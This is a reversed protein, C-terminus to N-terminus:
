VKTWTTSQDPQRTWNLSDFHDTVTRPHMFVTDLTARRSAASQSPRTRGLLSLTHLFAGSRLGLHSEFFTATQRFHGASHRRTPQGTETWWAKTAIAKYSEFFVSPHASRYTSHSRRRRPTMAHIFVASYIPALHHTWFVSPPQVPQGNPRRREGVFIKKEFSAM